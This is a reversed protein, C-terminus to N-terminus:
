RYERLSTLRLTYAANGLDTDARSTELVGEFWYAAWLSDTRVRKEAVAYVIQNPPPPPTHICAGFYPVILFTSLGGRGADLPVAFGPIEVRQGDLEEVVAFTGLQPMQDLPSGEEIPAADSLMMQPGGFRKQDLEAYFDEYIKTLREGEGEPLLDDWDLTILVQEERSAEEGEGLPAGETNPARCAGLLLFSAAAFVTRM